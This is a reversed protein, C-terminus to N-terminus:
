NATALREHMRRLRDSVSGDILNDGIRVVLGGIISPDVHTRLEVEQGTMVKLQEKVIAEVSADLPAATTVDAIAIGSEKLVAENFAQVLDPIIPLRRRRVLMQGLRRTEPQSDALARDIMAIKELESQKPSTFYAMTAPDGALADLIALDNSWRDLTGQEKALEFVAQAYRKAAGSPM